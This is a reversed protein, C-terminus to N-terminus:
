LQATRAQALQGLYRGPWEPLEWALVRAAKLHRRALPRASAVAEHDPAARTFRNSLKRGFLAFLGELLRPACIVTRGADHRFGEHKFVTARSGPRGDILDDHILSAQHLAEICGFAALSSLDSFGARKCLEHDLQAAVSNGGISLHHAKNTLIPSADYGEALRLLDDDIEGKNGTSAEPLRVKDLM